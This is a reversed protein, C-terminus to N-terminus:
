PSAAGVSALAPSSHSRGRRLSTWSALYLVAALLALSRIGTWLSVSELMGGVMAGLLNSGLAGPSFGSEAFSRIFVIGAFFVPLCLVLSAALTRAFLSVFFISRIPVLYNIALTILLGTYAVKAPFLPKFGVVANALLILILLGAIVISNVLWTTGFLLAMKSIIQAELLLFGAGLFFFHWHVSRIPTGVDRLLFVCLFILLSSIVIVSLPLGPSKQYLYPWDDTTAVALEMPVHSHQEIFKALLPDALARALHHESGTVFFRGGSTYTVTGGESELQIPPHGFGQSL